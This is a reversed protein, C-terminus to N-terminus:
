GRFAINNQNCYERLGYWSVRTNASLTEAMASIIEIAKDTQFATCDWVKMGEAHPFCETFDNRRDKLYKLKKDTDCFKFWKENAKVSAAMIKNSVEARSLKKM